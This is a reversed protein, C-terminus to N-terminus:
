VCVGFRFLSRSGLSLRHSMSGKRVLVPQFIKKPVSNRTVGTTVQSFIRWLEDEVFYYVIPATEDADLHDPQFSTSITLFFVLVFACIVNLWHEPKWHMSWIQIHPHFLRSLGIDFLLCLCLLCSTTNHEGYMKKIYYQLKNPKTRQADM